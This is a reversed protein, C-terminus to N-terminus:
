TVHKWTHGTAIYNVTAKHVGFQKAVQYQLAGNRLLTKIKTVDDETLKSNAKKSGRPVSNPRLRSGHKDGRCVKEPSRQSYHNIGTQHRHRNVMDTSNQKPTGEYLHNENICPPNDCRHLAHMGVELKRGLKSELIARHLYLLKGEITRRPYGAKNKCGKWERCSGETVVVYDTVAIYM